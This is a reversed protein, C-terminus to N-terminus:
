KQPVSGDARRRILGFVSNGENFLYKAMHSGVFGSVGTILINKNRPSM